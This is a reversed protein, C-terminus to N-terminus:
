KSFADIPATLFWPSAECIIQFLHTFVEQKWPNASATYHRLSFKYMSFKFVVCAGGGGGTFKELFRIPFAFLLVEFLMLRECMRDSVRWPIDSPARLCTDQYRASCNSAYQLALSCLVIESMDLGSTNAEPSNWCLLFQAPPFCNWRWVGCGWALFPGGCVKVFGNEIAITHFCAPDWFGLALKNSYWITQGRYVLRSMSWINRPVLGCVMPAHGVM